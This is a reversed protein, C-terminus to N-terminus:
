IRKEKLPIKDPTEAMTEQEIDHESYVETMSDRVKATPWMEANKNAISKANVNDNNYFWSYKEM